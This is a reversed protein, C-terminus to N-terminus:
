FSLVTSAPDPDMQVMKKVPNSGFCHLMCGVLLCTPLLVPTLLLRSVAEKSGVM